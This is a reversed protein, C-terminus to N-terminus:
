FYVQDMRYIEEKMKDQFTKHHGRQTHRKPFKCKDYKEKLLQMKMETRVKMLDEIDHQPLMNRREFLRKERKLQTKLRDYENVFENIDTTYIPEHNVIHKNNRNYTLRNKNKYSDGISGETDLYINRGLKVVKYNKNVIKVNNVYSVRRRKNKITTETSQTTTLRLTNFVKTKNQASNLNARKFQIKEKIQALEDQNTINLRSKADVFHLAIKKIVHEIRNKEINRDANEIALKHKKFNFSNFAKKNEFPNRHFESTLVNKKFHSLSFGNLATNKQKDRERKMFARDQKELEKVRKYFLLSKADELTLAIHKPRRTTATKTRKSSLTQHSYPTIM